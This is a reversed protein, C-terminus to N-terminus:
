DLMSKMRDYIWTMAKGKLKTKNTVLEVPPAWEKHDFDVNIIHFHQNNASDNVYHSPLYAWGLSQAVLRSINDYNNSWWVHASMVPLQIQVGGSDGRQLIQRHQMLTSLNVSQYDSLPHNTSCVPTFPLHGIFCFDIVSPPFSLDSLMCGLDAGGNAIEDCIDASDVTKLEIATAKFLTSFENIIAMMPPLLLASDIAITIAVEEENHLANAVNNFEAYQTVVAKAHNLLNQGQETLTPKRTQRDFLKIGLDIELNAIGQSVASQAKGLKRAAGSFSGSQAAEIFMKLQEINGM